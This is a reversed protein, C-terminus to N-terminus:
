GKGGSAVPGDAARRPVWGALLVIIVMGGVTSLVARFVLNRAYTM